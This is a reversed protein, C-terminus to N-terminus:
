SFVHAYTKRQHWIFRRFLCAQFSRLFILYETAWFCQPYWVVRKGFWGFCMLVSIEVKGVCWAVTAMVMSSRQVGLSVLRELLHQNIRTSWSMLFGFPNSVVQSTYFGQLKHSLSGVEVPSEGSKQVMLLVVRPSQILSSQLKLVSIGPNQLDVMTLFYDNLLPIDLNVFAFCPLVVGMSNTCRYCWCFVWLDDETEEIQRREKPIRQHNRDGVCRCHGAGDKTSNSM